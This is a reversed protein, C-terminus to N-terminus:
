AGYSTPAFHLVGGFEVHIMHKLLLHVVLEALTVFSVVVVPISVFNTGPVARIYGRVVSPHEISPSQASTESSWEHHRLHGFHQIICHM